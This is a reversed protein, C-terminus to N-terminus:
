LNAMAVWTGSTTVVANTVSTGAATTLVISTTGGGSAVTTHLIAGSVGAGVIAINQGNLVATGSAVTLATSGSNVSGTTNAGTVTCMWGTPQGVAPTANYCVSGKVWYKDSYTQPSVANWHVTRDSVQLYHGDPDGIIGTGGGSGIGFAFKLAYPDTVTGDIISQNTCYWKVSQPSGTTYAQYQPAYYSEQKPSLGQKAQLRNWIVGGAGNRSISYSDVNNYASISGIFANGTYSQNNNGEMDTTFMGGFSNDAVYIGYDYAEITGGYMVTGIGNTGGDMYIGYSGTVIGASNGALWLNYMSVTTWTDGSLPTPGKMRVGYKYALVYSTSITIGGSFGTGANLYIGSGTSAAYVGSGGTLQIYVDNISCNRSTNGVEIGNSAVDSTYVTLGQIKGGWGSAIIASSSGSYNIITTSKGEGIIWNGGTITLSSTTKYTGANILLVQGTATAQTIAAQIAVTDDTTGDGVAGFDKVSLYEQLKAKVNSNVAGTGGENYLVSSANVSLSTSAGITYNVLDGANLGTTFTFSTTTTETYNVNYIQRSGNVYVSLNDGGLVFGTPTNIVTQGQTATITDSFLTGGAGNGFISWAGNKYGEYQDLDTNYRIMGNQPFAARQATTGSPIRTQGVGGFAVTGSTGTLAGTIPTQGDAAISGTIATAMDALTNNAWTSSIVTGTVVPNGAPLNYTGTGNRSM